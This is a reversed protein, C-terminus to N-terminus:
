SAVHKGGYKPIYDVRVPMLLGVSVQIPKIGSAVADVTVGALSLLRM